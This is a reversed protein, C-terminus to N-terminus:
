IISPTNVRKYKYTKYAAAGIGAALLFYVGDDIPCPDAPDTCPDIPDFPGQAKLEKPDFPGQAKLENSFCIAFLTFMCGTIFLKKFGM